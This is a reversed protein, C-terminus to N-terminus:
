FNSYEDLIIRSYEKSIFPSINNCVGENDFVTYSSKFINAASTNYYLTKLYMIDSKFAIFNFMLDYLYFYINDFEVHEKFSVFESDSNTFWKILDVTKEAYEEIIKKQKEDDFNHSKFLNILSDTSKLKEEINLVLDLVTPSKTDDYGFFQELSAIFACIFEYNYESDPSYSVALNIVASVLKNVNDNLNKILNEYVTDTHLKEEVANEKYCNIDHHYKNYCDYLKSMYDFYPLFGDLGSFNKQYVKEIIHLKSKDVAVEKLDTNNIIKIIDKGVSKISKIFKDINRQEYSSVDSIGCNEFCKVYEHYIEGTASTNRAFFANVDTSIYKMEKLSFLYKQLKLSLSYKIVLKVTMYLLVPLFNESFNNYSLFTRKYLSFNYEQSVPGISEITYSKDDSGIGINHYKVTFIYDREFARITKLTIKSLEAIFEKNKEIGDFISDYLDRIPKGNHYNVTNYRVKDYLNLVLPNIITKKLKKLTKNNIRDWKNIKIIKAIRICISYINREIIYKPCNEDFTNTTNEIINVIDSQKIVFDEGKESKIKNVVSDSIYFDAYENDYFFDNVAKCYDTRYEMIKEINDVIVHKFASANETLLNFINIHYSDKNSM